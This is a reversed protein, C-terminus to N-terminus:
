QRHNSVSARKIRDLVSVINDERRTQLPAVLLVELKRQEADRLIFYFSGAPNNTELRYGPVNDMRYRTDNYIIGINRGSEHLKELWNQYDKEDASLIVQCDTTITKEQYDDLFAVKRKLVREIAEVPTGGRRLIVMEERSADIITSELGSGTLGADLVAAIKGNLDQLVHAGEVPSPRGHLNASPAAIPGAKEILAIAVPHAPMRFGISGSPGCIETPLNPKGPMIIALPGPWFNETLLRVETSISAVMNEVQQLSSVHVLLPNNQPRGKAIFVKRLAESNYADAGLGYVTETPFAVLEGQHLLAAARAIIDAQPNQSDIKWCQTNYM